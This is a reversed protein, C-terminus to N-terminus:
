WEKSKELEEKAINLRKYLQKYDERILFDRDTGRIRLIENEIYTIEEALKLTNNEVKPKVVEKVKEIIKPQPTEEANNMLAKKDISVKFGYRNKHEVIYCGYNGVLLDRYEKDKLELDFYENLEKYTWRNYGTRNQHTLGFSVLMLLIRDKLEEKDDEVLHLPIKIYHESEKSGKKFNVENVSIDNMFDYFMEQESVLKALVEFDSGKINLTKKEKM